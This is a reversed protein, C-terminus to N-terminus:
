GILNGKHKVWVPEPIWYRWAFLIIWRSRLGSFMTRWSTPPFTGEVSGGYVCPGQKQEKLTGSHKGAWQTCPSKSWLEDVFDNIQAIGFVQVLAAEAGWKNTSQLIQYADQCIPCHWAVCGMINESIDTDQKNEPELAKQSRERCQWQPNSSNRSSSIQIRTHSEAREVGCAAQVTTLPRRFARVGGNCERVPNRHSIISKQHRKLVLLTFFLPELSIM